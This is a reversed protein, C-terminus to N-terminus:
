SSAERMDSQRNLQDAPRQAVVGVIREVEDPPLPEICRQANFLRVTSLIILPDLCTRILLGAYRAVASGRSSGECTSDLFTLWDETTHAQHSVDSSKPLAKVADSLAIETDPNAAVITCLRPTAKRHWSGPWRIPHVIPNNSSDGGVLRAASARAGKLAKLDELSRVPQKLRWHLHLKDHIEGEGDIWQGGSRVVVTAPGLLEELQGRAAHPNQDCEVSLVLGALIDIERAHKPNNLVCMPPAFVLPEPHQAARRADDEARDILYKFNGKLSVPSTRFPPTGEEHRFTRLSIFGETGRYRLTADVFIELLDRDPERLTMM